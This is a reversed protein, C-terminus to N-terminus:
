KSNRNSYPTCTVLFAFPEKSFFFFFCERGEKRGRKRGEERENKREGKRGESRGIERRTKLSLDGRMQAGDEEARGKMGM